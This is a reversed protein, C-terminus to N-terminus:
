IVQGNLRVSQSLLNFLDPDSKGRGGLSLISSIAVNQLYFGSSLAYTDIHWLLSLISQVGNRLLGVMLNFM